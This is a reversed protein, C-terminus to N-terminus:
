VEPAREDAIQEFLRRTEPAPNVQLESALLATLRAYSRLADARNGAAEHVLMLRRHGAERFPELDVAEEAARLALAHEGNSAHVQALCDLARLRLKRVAERRGEVWLGDEGILFGRRLIGAAVVAPGYAAPMKGAQVAAEARHVADVAAEVDVWCDAPLELRYSGSTTSVTQRGLGLEAFLARLKSVISSLAVDFAPPPSDLWLSDVLEDRPVARDRESVLYAFILRGQRGPLRESRVLRGGMTLTPEGALYIRLM